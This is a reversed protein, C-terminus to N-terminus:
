AHLGTTLKPGKPASTKLLFLEKSGAGQAAEDEVEEVEKEEEEAAARSEPRRM